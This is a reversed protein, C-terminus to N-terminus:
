GTPQPGSTTWSFINTARLSIDAGFCRGFCNMWAERFVLSHRGCPRHSCLAQMANYVVRPLSPLPSLISPSVQGMHRAQGSSREAEKKKKQSCALFAAFTQREVLFSDKSGQSADQELLSHWCLSMEPPTQPLSLFVEAAEAAKRAHLWFDRGGGGSFPALSLIRREASHAYGRFYQYRAYLYIVGCFAALVQHSFIGAVWLLSLFIPFYESCNAQARFIREFEPPGSIIPPSVKFKRRFAIVQIAFYAPPLCFTFFLENNRRTFSFLETM